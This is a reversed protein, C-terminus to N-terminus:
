LITNLGPCGPDSKLEALLGDQEASALQELRDVTASPLRAIMAETFRREFLARGAGLIREVRSAGPPEIREERFRALVDDRLRDISLEVPCLENALWRAM